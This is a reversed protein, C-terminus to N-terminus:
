GQVFDGIYKTSNEDIHSGHGHPKGEEWAGEYGM